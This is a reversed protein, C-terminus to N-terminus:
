VKISLMIIRKRDSLPEKKIATAIALYKRGSVCYPSLWDSYFHRAPSVDFYMGLLVLIQM